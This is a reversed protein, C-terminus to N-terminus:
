LQTSQCSTAVYDADAPRSAAAPDYVWHWPEDIKAQVFGFERAHRHLWAFIVSACWRQINSRRTGAVVGTGSDSNLEPANEM